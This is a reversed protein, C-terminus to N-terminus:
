LSTMDSKETFTTSKIVKGSKLEAVKIQIGDYIHLLDQDIVIKTPQKLGRVFRYNLVINEKNTKSIFIERKKSDNNLISTVRYYDGNRKDLAISDSHTVTVKNCSLLTFLLLPLLLQIKM